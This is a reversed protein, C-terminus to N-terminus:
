RITGHAEEGRILSLRCDSCLHDGEARPHGCDKRINGCPLTSAGEPTAPVVWQAGCHSCDFVLARDAARFLPGWLKSGGCKKCTM